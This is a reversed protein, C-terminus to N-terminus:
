RSFERLVYRICVPFVWEREWSSKDPANTVIKYYTWATHIEGVRQALKFIYKLREMEAMDTWPNLYATILSEKIERSYDGESFFPILSFFPHSICGDTWDFFITRDRISAINAVYFDGHELTDPINCQDLQHCAQKLEPVVQHWEEIENDTLSFDRDTAIRSLNASIEDIQEILMPMRRDPCGLELLRDINNVQEIQIRAYLELIEEWRSWDDEQYLFPADFDETLMWNEEENVALIHPIHEPYHTSLYKTLAPEHQFIDPLAKLYVDGISTEARLVSSMSWSKVQRVPGALEVGRALLREEIWEAASRLWGERAWQPRGWDDLTQEAFYNRIATLNKPNILEVKELDNLHVWRCNDPIHGNNNRRELIYGAEVQQSDQDRDYYSCYLLNTDIKLLEKVKTNIHLANTFHYEEPVISPLSWKGEETQIALISKTDLDPLIIHYRYNTTM